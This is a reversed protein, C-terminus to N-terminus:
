HSRDPFPGESGFFGLTTGWLVLLPLVTTVNIFFGIKDQKQVDGVASARDFLIKATPGSQFLVLSRMLAGWGQPCAGSQDTELAKSM